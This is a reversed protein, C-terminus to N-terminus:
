EPVEEEDSPVVQVAQGWKVFVLKYQRCRVGDIIATRRPARFVIELAQAEDLQIPASNLGSSYYPRARAAAKADAFSLWVARFSYTEVDVLRPMTLARNAALLPQSLEPLWNSMM